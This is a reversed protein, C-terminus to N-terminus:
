TTAFIHHFTIAANINVLEAYFEENEFDALKEAIRSELSKVVSSAFGSSKRIAEMHDARQKKCLEKNYKRRQWGMIQMYFNHVMAVSHILVSLCYLRPNTDLFDSDVVITRLMVFECVQRIMGFNETSYNNKVMEDELIDIYTNFTLCFDLAKFLKVELKLILVKQGESSWEDIFKAFTLYSHPLPSDCKCSVFLAALGIIKLQFDLKSTDNGFRDFLKQLKVLFYRDSIMVARFFTKINITLITAVKILWDYFKPRLVENTWFVGRKDSENFRPYSEFVKRARIEQIYTRIYNLELTIKKCKVTPETLEKNRSYQSRPDSINLNNMLELVEFNAQDIEDETPSESLTNLDQPKGYFLEQYRSGRARLNQVHM